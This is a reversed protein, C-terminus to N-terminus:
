VLRNNSCNVISSFTLSRDPRSKLEVDGIGRSPMGARLTLKREGQGRRGLHLSQSLGEYSASLVLATLLEMKPSGSDVAHKGLM